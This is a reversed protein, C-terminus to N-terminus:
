VLSTGGASLVLVHFKMVKRKNTDTRALAANYLAAAQTFKRGDKTRKGRQVYVDGLTRLCDAERPRDPKNRDHILKLASAFKQEALDLKGDALARSGSALLKKYLRYDPTPRTPTQSAVFDSPTLNRYKLSEKVEADECQLMAARYLIMARDPRGIEKSLRGPELSADGLSKLVEVELERDMNAMADLLARLYDTETRQLGLRKSKGDVAGLKECARLMKSAPECFRRCPRVDPMHMQRTSPPADRFQAITHGACEKRPFFLRRGRATVVSHGGSDEPQRTGGQPTWVCIKGGRSTKEAKRPATAEAGATTPPPRILSSIGRIQM